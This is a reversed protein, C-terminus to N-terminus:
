MEFIRCHRSRRHEIFRRCAGAYGDRRGPNMRNCYPKRTNCGAFEIARKCALICMIPVKGSGIKQHVFRAAPHGIRGTEHGDIITGNGNMARQNGCSAFQM